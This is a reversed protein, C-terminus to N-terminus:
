IIVDIFYTYDKSSNRHCIDPYNDLEDNHEANQHHNV